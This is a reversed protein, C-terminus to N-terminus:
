YDLQPAARNCSPMGILDLVAYETGTACKPPKVDVSEGQSALLAADNTPIDLQIIDIISLSRFVSEVFRLRFERMDGADGRPTLHRDLNGMFDILWEGRDYVVGVGAQVEEPAGGGVGVFHPVRKRFDDLVSLARTGHEPPNPLECM